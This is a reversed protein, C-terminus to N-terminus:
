RPRAHPHNARQTTVYTPPHPSSHREALRRKGIWHRPRALFYFGSRECGGRKEAGPPRYASRKVGETADHTGMKYLAQLNETTWEIAPATNKKGTLIRFTFPVDLGPHDVEVPIAKPMSAEALRKMKRQLRRRKRAEVLKERLRRKHEKTQTEVDNSAGDGAEGDSGSSDAKHEAAADSIFDGGSRKGLVYCRM